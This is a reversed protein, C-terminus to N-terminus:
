PPGAAFDIFPSSWLHILVNSFHQVVAILQQFQDAGATHGVDILGLAVAKVPKHGDFNQFTLQRLICLEAAAEPIFRQSDGLQAM